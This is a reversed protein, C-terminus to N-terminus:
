ASLSSDTCCNRSSGASARPTITVPTNDQTAVVGREVGHVANTNACTVILYATGLVAM